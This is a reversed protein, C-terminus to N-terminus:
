SPLATRMRYIPSSSSSATFWQLRQFENNQRGGAEASRLVACFSSVFALAAIRGFVCICMSQMSIAQKKAVHHHSPCLSIATPPLDQRRQKNHEPGHKFLIVQVQLREVVKDLIAMRCQSSAKSHVLLM